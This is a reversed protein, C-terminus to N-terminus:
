QAQRLGTVGQANVILGGKLVLLTDDGDRRAEIVQSYSPVPETKLVEGEASSELLFSYAGQGATGGTATRGDWEVPGETLPLDQRLVVAGSAD